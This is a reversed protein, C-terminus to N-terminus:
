SLADLLRNGARGASPSAGSAVAPAASVGAGPPATASQSRPKVGKRKKKGASRKGEGLASVSASPSARAPADGAGRYSDSGVPLILSLEIGAQWVRDQNSSSLCRAVYLTSSTAPHAALCCLDRDPLFLHLPHLPALRPRPRLHLLRLLRLRSRRPWTRSRRSRGSRRSQPPVQLVPLEPLLVKRAASRARGSCLYSTLALKEIDQTGTQIRGCDWCHTGSSGFRLQPQGRSCQFPVSRSGCLASILALVPRTAIEGKQPHPDQAVEQLVVLWSGGRCLHGCRDRLVHDCDM